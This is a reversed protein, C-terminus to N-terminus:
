RREREERPHQSRVSDLRFCKQRLAHVFAVPQTGRTNFATYVRESRLKKDRKIAAGRRDAFDVRQFRAADIHEYEIMVFDFARKGMAREDIRLKCIRVTSNPVRFRLIWFEIVEAGGADD